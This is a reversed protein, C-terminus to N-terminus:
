WRDVDTINVLLQGKVGNYTADFKINVISGIGSSSDSELEFRDVDPFKDLIQLMDELERRTLYIKNM